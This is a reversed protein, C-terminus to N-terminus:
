WCSPTPNGLYGSVSCRRAAAAPRLRSGAQQATHKCSSERHAVRSSRGVGRADVRPGVLGEGATLSRGSTSSLLRNINTTYLQSKSERRWAVSGARGEFHGAGGVRPRDGGEGGGGAGVRCGHVRDPAGVGLLVGVGLHSRSHDSKQRCTHRSHQRHQLRQYRRLLLPRVVCLGQVGGRRVDDM